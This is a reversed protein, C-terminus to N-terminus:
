SVRRKPPLAMEIFEYSEPTAAEVKAAIAAGHERVIRWINSGLSVPPLKRGTLNQQYQINQDSRVMVDFAAEEAM